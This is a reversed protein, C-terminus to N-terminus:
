FGHEDEWDKAGKETKAIGVKFIHGNSDINAQHESERRELDQTRGGHLINNGKKFYYTYWDRSQGM